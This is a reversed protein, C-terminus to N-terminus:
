AMPGVATTNGKWWGAEDAYFCSPLHIITQGNYTCTDLTRTTQM